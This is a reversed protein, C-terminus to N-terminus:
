TTGIYFFGSSSRAMLFNALSIPAGSEKTAPTDPSCIDESIFFNQLSMQEVRFARSSHVGHHFLASSYMPHILSATLFSM